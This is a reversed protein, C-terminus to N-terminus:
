GSGRAEKASEIRKCLSSRNKKQKARMGSSGRFIDTYFSTLSFISRRRNSGTDEHRRPVRREDCKFSQEEKENLKEKKHEGGRGRM